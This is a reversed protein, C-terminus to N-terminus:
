HPFSSLLPGTVKPHRQIKYLLGHLHDFTKLLLVKYDLNYMYKGKTFRGSFSISDDWTGHSRCRNKDVMVSICYFVSLVSTISCLYMFCLLFLKQSIKFIALCLIEFRCLKLIELMQQTGFLTCGKLIEMKVHKFKVSLSFIQFFFLRKIM